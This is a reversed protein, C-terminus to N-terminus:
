FPIGDIGTPQNGIKVQSGNFGGALPNGPMRQKARQSAQSMWAQTVPTEEDHKPWKVFVDDEVFRRALFHHQIAGQVSM